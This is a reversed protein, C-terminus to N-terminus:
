AGLHKLSQLSPISGQLSSRELSLARLNTAQNLSSPIKGTLSNQGLNLQRLNTMGGFEEPVPGQLNNDNLSVFRLFNMETLEIPITGYINNSSLDLGELKTFARIEAQINGELSNSTLNLNIIDANGDFSTQDGICEVGYWSCYGKGTMWNEQMTWESDPAAGDGLTAFFFVAVAYRQLMFEDEIGIQSPDQNALWDLAKSQPSGETKFQSSDVYPSDILRTQLASFRMQSNMVAGDNGSASGQVTEEPSSKPLETRGNIFKIVGGIGIFVVVLAILLMVCKWHYCKRCLALCASFSNRVVRRNKKSIYEDESERSTADGYKSLNHDSSSSGRARFMGGMFGSRPPPPASTNRLDVEYDKAAFLNQTGTLSINPSPAGLPIDVDEDDAEEDWLFRRASEMAETSPNSSPSAHGRKTLGGEDEEEDKFDEIGVAMKMLDIQRQKEKSKDFASM